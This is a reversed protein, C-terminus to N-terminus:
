LVHSIAFPMLTRPDIIEVSVGEKALVDAATLSFSVMAGAAVITPDTGERKVDAVGLM